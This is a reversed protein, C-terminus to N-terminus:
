LNATNREFVRLENIILNGLNKIDPNVQAMTLDTIRKIEPELTRLVFEKIEQVRKEVYGRDQPGTINELIDTLLMVMYAREAYFSSSAALVGLTNKEAPDDTSLFLNSALGAYEAFHEHSVKFHKSSAQVSLAQSLALCAMVLVALPKKM